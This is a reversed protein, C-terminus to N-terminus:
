SKKAESSESLASRLASRLATRRRVTERGGRGPAGSSAACIRNTSSEADLDCLTAVGDDPTAVLTRSDPSFALVAVFGTEVTLPRGIATPRDPDTVNWLHITGNGTHGGAALTKGDPSFEVSWM